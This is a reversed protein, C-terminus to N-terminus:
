SKKNLMIFYISYPKRLYLPPWGYQGRNDNDFVFEELHGCKNIYIGTKPLEATKSHGKTKCYIAYKWLCPNM